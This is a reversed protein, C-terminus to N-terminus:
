DIFAGGRPSRPGTVEARRSASRQWDRRRQSPRRFLQESWAARGLHAPERVAATQDEEVRWISRVPQERNHAHANVARSPRRDPRQRSPAPPVPNTGSGLNPPFLLVRPQSSRGPARLSPRWGLISRSEQPSGSPRSRRGWCVVASDAQRIACTHAFGASIASVTGLDTPPSAQGVYPPAHVVDMNDGWCVVSLDARRIACTHDAGASIASV